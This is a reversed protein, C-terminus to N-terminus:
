WKISWAIMKVLPYNPNLAIYRKISIAASLRDIRNERVSYQQRLQSKTKTADRTKEEQDEIHTFVGQLIQDIIYLM